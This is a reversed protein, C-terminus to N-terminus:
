FVRPLCFRYLFSGTIWKGRTDVPLSTTSKARADIGARNANQDIGCGGNKGTACEKAM